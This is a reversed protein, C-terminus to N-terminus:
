FRGPRSREEGQEEGVEANGVGLRFDGNVVTHTDMVEGMADSVPRMPEKMMAMMPTISDSM